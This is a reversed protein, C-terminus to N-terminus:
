EASGEYGFKLVDAVISTNQYKVGDKESPQTKLHGEVYVFDGKGLSAIAIEALKGFVAVNHWETYQPREGTAEDKAGYSNTAVSFNAWTKNNSTGSKVDGGLRGMLIVKNVTNM